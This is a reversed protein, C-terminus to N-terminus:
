CIIVHDCWMDSIDGSRTQDKRVRESWKRHNGIFKAKPWRKAIDCTCDLGTVVAVQCQAAGWFTGAHRCTLDCLHPMESNHRFPMESMDCTDCSSLVLTIPRIYYIQIDSGEASKWGENEYYFKATLTRVNWMTYLSGQVYCCLLLVEGKDRLVENCSLVQRSKTELGRVESWAKLVVNFENFSRECMAFDCMAGRADNTACREYCIAYSYFCM